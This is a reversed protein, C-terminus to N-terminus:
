YSIFAPVAWCYHSKSAEEAHLRVERTPQSYGLRPKATWPRQPSVTLDLGPMWVYPVRRGDMATVWQPHLAAAALISLGPLRLNPDLATPAVDRWADFDVMVWRLRRACSVSGCPRRLTGADLRDFGDWCPGGSFQSLALEMLEHFTRVLGPVGGSDALTVSLVHAVLPKKPAQLGRIGASAAALEDETFGWGRERNWTRVKELQGEPPTFLGMWVGKGTQVGM